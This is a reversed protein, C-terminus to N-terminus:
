KWDCHDAVIKYIEEHIVEPPRDGNIMIVRNPLDDHLARFGERVREFWALPKQDFLSKARITDADVRRKAEEAPLDIILYLTPEYKGFVMGRIRWFEDELESAEKAYVQYAMTSSDCRDSIVPIGKELNPMVVREFWDSRAAWMMFFQTRASAIAGEPLSFLDRIKEALPSGGPERTDVFQRHSHLAREVLLKVQTGKGSGDMGDLVIFPTSDPASSEEKM